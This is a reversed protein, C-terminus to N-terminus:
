PTSAVTGATGGSADELGPEPTLAAINVLVDMSGAFGPVGHGPQSSGATTDGIPVRAVVVVGSTRFSLAEVFGRNSAHLILVPGTVSEQVPDCSVGSQDCSALMTDLTSQGPSAQTGSAFATVVLSTTSGDSSYRFIAQVSSSKALDAPGNTTASVATTRDVYPMSQELAALWDAATGTVATVPAATTSPGPSASSSGVAAASRDSRTWWGPLMSAGVAVAAVAAGAGALARRRRRTLQRQGAQRSRAVLESHPSAATAAAELEDRLVLTM